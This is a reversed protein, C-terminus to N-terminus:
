TTHLGAYGMMWIGRLVLLLGGLAFPASIHLVEYYPTGETKPEFYFLM